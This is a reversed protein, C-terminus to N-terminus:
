KNKELYKEVTNILQYFRPRRKSPFPFKPGYSTFHSALTNIASYLEYYSARGKMNTQRRYLALWDDMERKVRKNWKEMNPTGKDLSGSIKMHKVVQYTDARYNKKMFFNTKEAKDDEPAMGILEYPDATIRDPVDVNIVPAEASATGAAGFAAALAAAPLLASRRSVTAVDEDGGEVAPTSAQAVAPSSLGVARPPMGGVTFSLASNGLSGLMSAACACVVLCALPSHRGSAARAGALPRALSTM